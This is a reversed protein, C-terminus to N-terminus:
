TIYYDQMCMKQSDNAGQCVINLFDYLGRRIQSHRDLKMLIGKM